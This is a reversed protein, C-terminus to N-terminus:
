QMWHPYDINDAFRMKTAMPLDASSRVGVPKDFMPIWNFCVVRCRESNDNAIQRGDNREDWTISSALGVESLAVIEEGLV